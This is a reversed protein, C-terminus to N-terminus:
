ARRVTIRKTAAAAEPKKALKVTLVGNKFTANASDLDITDPLPVVREISGFTREQLYYDKEKKEVESKKEGRITLVGEALSIDIDKEDIGPLEATVEIEKDSESVDVSPMSISWASSTSPWPLDFGRWFSDFARNIDNQLSQLPQSQERRVPVQRKGWNWPILDRINM